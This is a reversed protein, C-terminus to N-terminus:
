DAKWERLYGSVRAYLQAQAYAELRGPLDISDRRARTDPKNVAVAPVSREETWKSLRADATKRVLVGTVVVAGLILALVVATLTLGRRSLVSPPTTEHDPQM